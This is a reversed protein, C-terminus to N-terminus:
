LPDSSPGPEGPSTQRWHFAYRGVRPAWRVYPELDELMGPVKLEEVLPLVQRLTEQQAPTWRLRRVWDPQSDPNLAQLLASWSKVPPRVGLVRSLQLGV